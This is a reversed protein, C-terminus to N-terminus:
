ARAGVGETRAARLGGTAVRRRASRRPRSGGAAPLLELLEEGELTEEELLREVLTELESRAGRLGEIARTAAESLLTAVEGDFIAQTEPSVQSLTSQVGLALETDTPLMRRAGANTLGFRGVVDIALQTAEALDDEGATSPDGLLLEEAARGAVMAALRDELAARTLPGEAEEREGALAHHGLRSFLSLRHLEGARGTLALVIARGSEYVAMRKTADRDLMSGRRQPGSRVRHVAEFFARSSLTQKGERITLLAAENIVSALDAGSFGPTQRALLSLDVDGEVPKTRAHLDLIASRREVDPREITIHRDFRGPRLLAPDLIDPRNTAAIVVIGESAEFGDMEVLLQNLTQDREDSGGGSAGSGRIRAAADLEDIFVIAPAVARVRAFLDRVRAAGVGVLSEVFEAGAVAFFPVQAEGAVARALLTKGCGPPGFLLVGKPPTAGLEIYREPRSLYDVVEQLEEVAEPLGAVDAFTVTRSAGARAKGRGIRGFSVVEGLASGGGRSSTFFLAFLNALIMLPLLVSLATRTAVKSTQPDVRVEIGAQAMEQLLRGATLDNRPYATWVRGADGKLVAVVRADEDLVTVREIRGREVLNSLQTISREFGPEEPELLLFSWVVAVSLVLLSALLTRTARPTTPRAGRALRRRRRELQQQAFWGGGSAM